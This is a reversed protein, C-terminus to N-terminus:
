VFGIEVLRHVSVVGRTISPAYRCNDLCIVLGNPLVFDFSRIAEVQARVSNGVYTDQPLVYGLRELQDVYGKMKLVYAAVPKGEEQKCAHFTQILDFREVRAQKEFMSKLEGGENHADMYQMGMGARACKAAPIGAAPAPPIPKEIVFM